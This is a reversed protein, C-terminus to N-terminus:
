PIVKAATGLCRKQSYRWRRSPRSIPIAKATGSGTTRAARCAAAAAPAAREGPDEREAERLAREAPVHDFAPQDVPDLDALVAEDGMERQRQQDIRRDQPDAQAQSAPRSVRPLM